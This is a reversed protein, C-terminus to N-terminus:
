VKTGNTDGDPLVTTTQPAVQQTMLSSNADTLYNPQNPDLAKSRKKWAASPTTMSAVLKQGNVANQYTMNRRIRNGSNNMSQNPGGGATAPSPVGNNGTAPITNDPALTTSGQATPSSPANKALLYVIGVLIAVGWLM